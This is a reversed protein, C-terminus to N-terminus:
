TTHLQEETKTTEKKLCGNESEANKIAEQNATILKRNDHLSDVLPKINEYGEANELQVILDIRNENLDRGERKLMEFVEKKDMFENLATRTEMWTDYNTDQVEDPIDLMECVKRAVADATDDVTAMHEMPFANEIIESVAEQIEVWVSKSMNM